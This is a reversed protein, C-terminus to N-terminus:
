RKEFIIFLEKGNRESISNYSKELTKIKFLSSFTDIYEKVCGGFPPGQKTLPFDFLLGVLKGKPSLLQNMKKAYNSRLKPELACFFTQEVILDYQNKHNFFDDKILHKKPFNTVRKSFNELPQTALDLIYVNKFGNKHLFEAEYGNGCGPILISIDKNKLQEFYTKLPTSIYGIDWGTNKYKYKNEWFETDFNNM